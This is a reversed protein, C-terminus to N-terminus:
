FTGARYLNSAAMAQVLFLSSVTVCGLGGTCGLRCPSHSSAERVVRQAERTWLEVAPRGRAERMVQLMADVLVPVSCNYLTLKIRKVALSLVAVLKLSSTDSVLGSM